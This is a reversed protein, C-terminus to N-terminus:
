KVQSIYWNTNDMSYYNNM